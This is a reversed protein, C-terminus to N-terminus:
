RDDRGRDRDRDRDRDGDRGDRGPLPPPPPLPLSNLSDRPPPGPLAAAGSAETAGALIGPKGTAIVVAAIWHWSLPSVDFMEGPQHVALYAARHLILTADAACACVCAPEVPPQLVLLICHDVQPLM